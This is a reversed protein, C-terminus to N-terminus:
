TDTARLILVSAASSVPYGYMRAFERLAKIAAPTLSLHVRKNGTRKRGPKKKRM